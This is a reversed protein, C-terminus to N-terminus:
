GWDFRRGLLEFLQENYPAYFRRLERRADRPMDAYRNPNYVKFRVSDWPPLGLFSLVEAYTEAPDAFFRESGVFLVQERPFLSLMRRVQDVYIGRAVYSFRRVAPSNYGPDAEMREREAATREEELAIAKRFCRDERSARVEHQYGSFAREVPDRFLAILRAEPLDRAIRAMAHPHFIYDPTAEGTVPNDRSDSSGCHSLPRLPFRSRYWAMGKHYHLSFYNVEKREAELVHPHQTLYNYLSTTGCKQAGVIIFAPEMRWRATM